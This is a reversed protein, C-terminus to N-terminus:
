TTGLFFVKGSALFTFYAAKATTGTANISPTTHLAFVAACSFSTRVPSSGTAGSLRPGPTGSHSHVREPAPFCTVSSFKGVQNSCCVGAVLFGRGGRDGLCFRDSIVCDVRHHPIRLM